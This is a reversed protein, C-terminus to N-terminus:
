RGLSTPSTAARIPASRSGKSIRLKTVNAGPDLSFFCFPAKQYIVAVAKVTSGEARAVVLSAIDTFGIQAIGSEVNQIGQATGKAQIINVNLGEEKYYGKDIAVYFPAHRGLTIFDLSFTIDTLKKEQAQAQGSEGTAGGLMLWASCLFAAIVKKMETEERNAKTALKITRMTESRRENVPTFRHELVAGTLNASADSILYLLTPIVGEPEGIGISNRYHERETETSVDMFIPTARVGPSLVNARVNYNRLEQATSKIMGILAAKSAAYASAGPWGTLALGSTFAVIAGSRQAKMMPIIAHLCYFVGNLNTDIVKRWEKATMEDLNTRIQIAAALVAADLRPYKRRVEDLLRTVAAEDSVDVQRLDIKNRLSPDLGRLLNDHGRDIAIVSAGERACHRTLAAGIGSGAGTILVVADDFKYSVSITM